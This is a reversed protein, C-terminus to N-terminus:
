GRLYAKRSDLAFEAERSLEGCVMAFRALARTRGFATHCAKVRRPFVRKRQLTRGKPRAYSQTIFEAKAASPQKRRLVPM